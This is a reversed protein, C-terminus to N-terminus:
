KNYEIVLMELTYVHKLFCPASVLLSLRRVQVQFSCYRVGARGEQRCSARHSYSSARRSENVYVYEGWGQLSCSRKLGGQQGGHASPKQAIQMRIAPEQMLCPNRIKRQSPFVYLLLLFSTKGLGVTEMFVPEDGYIDGKGLIFCNGRVGSMVAQVAEAHYHHEPQSYAYGQSYLMKNCEYM